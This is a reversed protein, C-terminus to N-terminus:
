RGYFSSNEFLPHAEVTKDIAKALKELEVGKGLKLLYPINYITTGMNATCEIFIGEQTNTLPYVERVERKKSKGANGIFKELKQVTPNNKIDSTKIVIDFTKSLLINLRIASISTLGSYYIDSTIGFSTHGLADAVCDFIKQRSKM